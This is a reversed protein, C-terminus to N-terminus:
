SLTTDRAVAVCAALWAMRVSADRYVHVTGGSNGFRTVIRGDRTVAAGVPVCLGGHVFDTGDVVADREWEGADGFWPRRASYHCSVVYGPRDNWQAPAIAFPGDLSGVAGGYERVYEGDLTFKGVCGDGTFTVLFHRGDPSLCVGFPREMDGYQYLSWYGSVYLYRLTVGSAFDLVALSSLSMLSQTVVIVETNCAVARPPELTTLERITDGAALELEVVVRNHEM